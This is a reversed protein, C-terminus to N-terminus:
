IVIAEIEKLLARPDLEVKKAMEYIDQGYGYLQCVKKEQKFMTSGYGQIDVTYIYPMGYKKKYSQYSSGSVISDGGQLDSIIFIRDYHTGNLEAFINGFNTGHGVKGQSNIVTKKITNISDLRNFLIGQTTTAFQFLDAGIGKAFTAGILAAKEIPNKNLNVSGIKCGSGWMGWMSGSTDVVVATNGDPFLEALNPVALEYATDIAKLIKLPIKVGEAVMIEMAIDIQHPFILSQKILKKDTLMAVVDDITDANIGAKLINRLNRILAFYGIKRTSILESFNEKKAQKVQVEAETKTIEGSIVKAAVEQGSKTNKDEVTNFQTLNGKMLKEFVEIMNDEPRPHVLNVIDVLSIAKGKGQYKALEYTDAHELANRFGKKIAGPLPKGPNFHFYAAAIELMDDLRHVIGGTEAKRNRKSFFRKGLEMGSLHPVLGVAGLHTVSRQGIVSRTYVLAKAVFEIDKPTKAVKGVLELLRKSRDDLTEYYKNGSIGTALLSILELKPSLKFGEGGQHNIIKEPARKTKQNYMSM